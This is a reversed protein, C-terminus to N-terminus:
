HFQLFNSPLNPRLMSYRTQGAPMVLPKVGAWAECFCSAIRRSAPNEREERGHGCLRRGRSTEPAPNGDHKKRDPLM